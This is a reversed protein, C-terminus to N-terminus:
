AADVSFHSYQISLNESILDESHKWHETKEEEEPPLCVFPDTRCCLTARADFRPGDYEILYVAVHMKISVHLSCLLAILMRMVLAWKTCTHTQKCTSANQKTEAALPITNFLSWKHVWLVNRWAVILTMYGQQPGEKRTQVKQDTSLFNQASDSLQALNATSWCLLCSTCSEQVAQIWHFGHASFPLCESKAPGRQVNQKKPLYRNVPWSFTSQM